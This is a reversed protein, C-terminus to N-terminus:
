LSPQSTWPCLERSNKGTVARLVSFKYSGALCFRAEFNAELFFFPSLYCAGLPAFRQCVSSFHVLDIAELIRRVTYFADMTRKLFIRHFIRDFSNEGEPTATTPM